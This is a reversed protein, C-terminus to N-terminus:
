REALCAAGMCFSMRTLRSIQVLFPGSTVSSRVAYISLQLAEEWHLDSTGYLTSKLVQFISVLSHFPRSRIGAHSAHSLLIDIILSFSGCLLTILIMLPSSCSSFHVEARLYKWKLPKLKVNLTQPKPNLVEARLHKWQFICLDYGGVTFLYRHAHDM